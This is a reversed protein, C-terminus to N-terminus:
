TQPKLNQKLRRVEEIDLETVRAIQEDTLINLALLNLATKIAKERQGKEMGEAIGIEKGKKIGIREATTIYQMKIEEEYKVLEEHYRKELAEPLAMVWDIFRYLNIIEQKTWGHRYLSKSLNLKYHFREQNKKRTEMARLHAM